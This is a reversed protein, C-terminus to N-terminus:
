SSPASPWLWARGAFDSVTWQSIDVGILGPTVIVQKGVVRAAVSRIM